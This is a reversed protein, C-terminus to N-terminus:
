NRSNPVSASQSGAREDSDRVFELAEELECQLRLFAERDGGRDPHMKEALRRYARKVDAETCPMELGLAYLCGPTHEKAWAPIGRIHNKVVLLAGKLARLYARIDIVAFWYGLLPLGLVILLYLVLLLPDASAFSNM